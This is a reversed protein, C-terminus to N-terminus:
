KKLGFVNSFIGAAARGFPAGGRGDSQWHWGQTDGAKKTIVEVKKAVMFSSYFGVGFQGILSVDKSNDGTLSKMFDATGSKAITGLNEILDDRNMGIGNDSITLTRNPKDVKIRIAFESDGDKMLAKDTLAAYRLRDCSDSSNSILERLFIESNSYLSHVVINLLKSVEAEFSLKEETM